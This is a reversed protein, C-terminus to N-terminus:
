WPDGGVSLAIILTNPGLGKLHQTRRVEVHADPPCLGRVTRLAENEIHAINVGHAVQTDPPLTEPWAGLRDLEGTGTFALSVDGNALLPRADCFASGYVLGLAPIPFAVALREGEFGQFFLKASDSGEGDVRCTMSWPLQLSYQPASYRLKFTRGHVIIQDSNM